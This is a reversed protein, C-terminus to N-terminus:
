VGSAPIQTIRTVLQLLSEPLAGVLQLVEGQLTKPSLVMLDMRIDSGQESATENKTAWTLRAASFM